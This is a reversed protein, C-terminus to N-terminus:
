FTVETVVPIKVEKASYLFPYLLINLTINRIESIKAHMKKM